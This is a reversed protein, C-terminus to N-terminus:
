DRRDFREFRRCIPYLSGDTRCPGFCLCRGTPILSRDPNKEGGTFAWLPHQPLCSWTVWDICAAVAAVGVHYDAHDAVTAAVRAALAPLRKARPLRRAGLSAVDAGEPSLGGAARGACGASVGRFGRGAESPSRRSNVATALRIVVPISRRTVTETSLQRGRDVAGTKM